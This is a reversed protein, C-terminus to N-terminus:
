KKPFELRIVAGGEKANHASIKGDLSTVISKAISLGLGAGGKSRSHAEDGRYFRDFIHPLIEKSFGKGNDQIEFVMKKSEEAQSLTIVCPKECFKMSNSIAVLFIQHLLEKDTSFSVPPFDAEDAIQIVIDDDMSFEERISDFFEYVSFESINLQVLKKELKTMDLLNKITAKMSHAENIIVKLSKELQEPDEKGWRNLLNAHGLIANVPTQLEHSVNASFDHERNFTEGIFSYLIFFTVLMIPLIVYPLAMPVTFILKSTSDNEIDISTQICLNRAPVFNTSYLVDLNGDLYFNKEVYRLTRGDTVSLLPVYYNNSAYVSKTTMDYVTYNVYYPLEIFGSSIASDLFLVSNRELFRTIVSNAGALDRSKLRYLNKLMIWSFFLFLFSMFLSIAATLKLSLQVPVSIQKKM